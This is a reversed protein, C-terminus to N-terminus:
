PMRAGVGDAAGTWWAAARPPRPQAVGVRPVDGLLSGTVTTVPRGEISISHVDQGTTTRYEELTTFVFPNMNAAGRSWVVLWAPQLAGTRQFINGDSRINLESAAFRHSYDEVCLTCAGSSGGVVNNGLSIDRITWPMDPDPFPRRPDHGPVSADAQSRSDQVINITRNGGVITNNWIQVDGTNNIKLANGGNGIILDDVIDVKQTLEIFAGHGLNGVLDSGAVTLDFVSQDTWIGSGDNRVFASDVIRVGRSKAIKVGGSVPAQNFHEANNEVALVNELRLDDALHAGVGLLGNRAVTVARLTTRAAGVFVGTTANDVVTVGELTVDPAEITVTGMMWVSTAYGRIGIGRVVTGAGRISLAKTVSSSRVQHGDPSSGIYLRDAAADVFFTGPHVQDRSGVQALATGDIWLQDPHAAMPHGPNIWQWGSTTGDPAGRTFTPSSDFEATWGDVFWATGASRWGAVSRAGDLWVEAGPASQITLRKGAPVTVNENYSGGRVVIVAGTTASDVAGQITSFPASASGTGGARASGDVMVAGVPIPATSAGPSAAGHQRRTGSEDWPPTSSSSPDSPVSPSPASSPTPSSTPTPSPRPTPAQSPPPHPTNGTSGAAAPAVAVRYDDFVFDQASSSSSLYGGVSVAGAVVLRASSADTAALRTSVGGVTAVADVAVSTTGRVSLQLVIPTNARVRTPLTTRALVVQRSGTVRLAELVAAGKPDVVVQVHYFGSSTKRAQLNLYVGRGFSPLSPVTFAVSQTTDVATLGSPSAAVSTGPVRMLARAVGGSVSFARPDSMRYTAAGSAGGLGTTVTRQMDDAFVVTPAAGAVVTPTSVTDREVALAASPAGGVLLASVLIVASATPRM